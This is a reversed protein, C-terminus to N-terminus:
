ICVTPARPRRVASCLTGASLVMTVSVCSCLSRSPSESVYQFGISVTYFQHCRRARSVLRAATNQVSQLRKLQTDAAGALLVKCYTLRTPLLSCLSWCCPAKVTDITLFRKFVRLQRLQYFCSKSVATVQVVRSKITESQCALRQHRDSFQAQSRLIDSLRTGLKWVSSPSSDIVLCASVIDHSLWSVVISQDSDHRSSVVSTWCCLRHRRTIGPLSCVSSVHRHAGQELM